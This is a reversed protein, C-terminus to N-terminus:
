RSKQGTEPPPNDITLIILVFFPLGSSGERREFYKKWRSREKTSTATAASPITDM